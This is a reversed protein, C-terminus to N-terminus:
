PMKNTKKKHIHLKHFYFKIRLIDPKNGPEDLSIELLYLIYFGPKRIFNGACFDNYLAAKFNVAFNYILFRAPVWMEYFTLFALLSSTIKVSEQVSSKMWKLLFKHWLYQFNSSLFMHLFTNWNKESSSKFLYM